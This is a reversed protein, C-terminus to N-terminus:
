RSRASAHVVHVKHAAPHGPNLKSAVSSVSAESRPCRYCDVAPRLLVFVYLYSRSRCKSTILCRPWANPHDPLGARGSLVRRLTVASRRAQTRVCCVPQIWWRDRRRGYATHADAVGHSQSKAQGSSASKHSRRPSSPTTATVLGSTRCASNAPTNPLWAQEAACIVSDV